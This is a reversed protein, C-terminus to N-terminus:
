GQKVYIAFLHPRWGHKRSCNAKYPATILPLNEFYVCQTFALAVTERYKPILSSSKWSSLM